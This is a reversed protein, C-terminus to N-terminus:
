TGTCWGTSMRMTWRTPSRVTAIELAEDVPLQKERDLKERLSEGEVYPM